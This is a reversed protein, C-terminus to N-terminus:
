RTSTATSSRRQAIEACKDRWAQQITHRGEATEVFEFYAYVGQDKWRALVEPPLVSDFPVGTIRGLMMTAADGVAFGNYTPAKRPAAMLSNYVPDDVTEGKFPMLRLAQLDRCPDSPTAGSIVIAVLLVSSAVMAYRLSSLSFRVVCWVTGSGLAEAMRMAPAACVSIASAPM